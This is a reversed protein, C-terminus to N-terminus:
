SRGKVVTMPPSPHINCHIRSCGCACGNRPRLAPVSPKKIFSTQSISEQRCDIREWDHFMKEKGRRSIWPRRDSPVSYVAVASLSTYIERISPRVAFRLISISSMHITSRSIQSPTMTAVEKPLVAYEEDAPPLGECGRRRAKCTVGM